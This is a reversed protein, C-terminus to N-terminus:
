DWEFYKLSCSAQTYSARSLLETHRQVGVPLPVVCVLTCMWVCM